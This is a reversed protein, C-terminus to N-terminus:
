AAMALSRNPSVTLTETLSKRPGDFATLGQMVLVADRIDQPTHLQASCRGVGQRFLRARAPYFAPPVWAQAHANHEPLTLTTQVDFEEALVHPDQGWPSASHAM